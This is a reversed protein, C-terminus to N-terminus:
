TSFFSVQNARTWSLAMSRDGPEISSHHNNALTYITMRPSIEQEFRTQYRASVGTSSSGDLM